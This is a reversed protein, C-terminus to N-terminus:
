SRNGFIATGVRVMTSGEEIALKFDGSMGMSLTSLDLTPRTASLQDRCSRLSQFCHRVESEEAQNAITMLGGLRLCPMTSIEDALGEVADPPIGAQHAIGSTNVQILVEISREAEEARRALAQALRQNDVSQVCDFLDVAKGAKNRQLQGILHWRGGEIGPLKETAEQIRNEGLDSVGAALAAEIDAVPRTKSVAVITVESAQRSNRECAQAVQDCVRNWNDEIHNM